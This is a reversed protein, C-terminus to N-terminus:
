RFPDISTGPSDIIQNVSLQPPQSFREREVLFRPKLFNLRDSSKM